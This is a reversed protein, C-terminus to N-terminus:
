RYIETHNQEEIKNPAILWKYFSISVLSCWHVIHMQSLLCKCNGPSWMWSDKRPYIELGHKHVQRLPRHWEAQWPIKWTCPLTWPITCKSGWLLAFDISCIRKLWWFPCQERPLVTSYNTQLLKGRWCHLIIVESSVVAPPFSDSVKPHHLPKGTGPHM